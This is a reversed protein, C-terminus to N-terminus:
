NTAAQHPARIVSLVTGTGRLIRPSHLMMPPVVVAAPARATFYEGDITFEVELSNDDSFLLYTQTVEHRHPLVNPEAPGELNVVSRSTIFLDAIPLMEGSLHLLRTKYAAPMDVDVHHALESLDHPKTTYRAGPPSNHSTV